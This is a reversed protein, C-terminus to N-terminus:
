NLVNKVDNQMWESTKAIGDQLLITPKWKLEKEALKINLVNVNVDFSRAKLYIKTIKKDIVNEILKILDNLNIGNGSGINFTNEQGNYNIASCFAEAVDSIYIYDRVVSGDGWIEIPQGALARRLFASVAGQATEVRQREGFPNAVRLTITKIGHMREFLHLYKEITLKTIGYSVVPDTPHYEDIPLYVPKGYITGGSSIYIIKKVGYKIMLNLMQITGIVNTHVDYALDDNSNKPLTTSILHIVVDVDKIANSIDMINLFDGTVWEIKENNSFERFPLVRPRDFVKVYHGVRLLHDVIWSGIFGGGGLIVCRM